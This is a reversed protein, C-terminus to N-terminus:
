AKDQTLKLRVIVPVLVIPSAILEMQTSVYNAVAEVRFDRGALPDKVDSDVILTATATYTKPLLKIVVAGLMILTLSIVVIWKWRARLMAFVQNLSMGQQVPAESMFAQAEPPPLALTATEPM